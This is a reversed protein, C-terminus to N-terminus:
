YGYRRQNEQDQSNGYLAGAGAGAAGGIAAGELANGSQHGIIGGLVAGGLGGVVAGRQTNPGAPAACNSLSVAATASLFILTLKKM